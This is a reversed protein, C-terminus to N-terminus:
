RTSSCSRRGRAPSRAGSAVAMFVDAASLPEVTAGAFDLFKQGDAGMVQRLIPEQVQIDAFLWTRWM